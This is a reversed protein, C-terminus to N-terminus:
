DNMVPVLSVGDLPRVLVDMKKPVHAIEADLTTKVMRSLSPEEWSMPMVGFLSKMMVDIILLVVMVTLMSTVLIVLREELMKQPVTSVATHTIFKVPPSSEVHSIVTLTSLSVMSVQVFVKSKLMLKFQLTRMKKNSISSVVHDADKTMRFLLKLLEKAAQTLTFRRPVHIVIEREEMATDREEMFKIRPIYIIMNVMVTNRKAEALQSTMPHTAELLRDEKTTASIM